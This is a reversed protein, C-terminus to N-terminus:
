SLSEYMRERKPLILVLFTLYQFKINYYINKTPNKLYRNIIIRDDTFNLLIM